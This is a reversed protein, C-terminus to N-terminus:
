LPCACACPFAHIYHFQAAHRWVPLHWDARCNICRIMQSNQTNRYRNKNYIKTGKHRKHSYKQIQQNVGFEFLKLPPVNHLGDQQSQSINKEADPRSAEALVAIRAMVLDAIDQYRSERTLLPTLEEAHDALGYVVTVPHRRISREGKPLAHFTGSVYAPVVPVRGQCDPVRDRRQRNALARGAVPNGRSVAVARRWKLIGLAARM